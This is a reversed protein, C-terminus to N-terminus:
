TSKYLVGADDTRASFPMKRQRLPVIHAASANTSASEDGWSGDVLRKNGIEEARKVQLYMRDM